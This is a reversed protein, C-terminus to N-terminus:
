KCIVDSVFICEMAFIELNFNGVGKCYWVGLTAVFNGDAFVEITLHESKV